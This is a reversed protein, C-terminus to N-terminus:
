TPAFAGDHARHSRGHQQQRAGDSSDRRLLHNRRGSLRAEARRRTRGNREGTGLGCCGILDDRRQVLEFAEGVRGGGWCRLTLRPKSRGRRRNSDLQRRGWCHVRPVEHLRGWDPHWRDGSGRRRAGPPPALGAAGPRRTRSTASYLTNSTGATGITGQGREAGSLKPPFPSDPAAGHGEDVCTGEGATAGSPVGGGRATLQAGSTTEGVGARRDTAARGGPDSEPTRRSHARMSRRGVGRGPGPSDPNGGVTRPPASLRGVPVAPHSIRHSSGNRHSSGLAAARHWVGASKVPAEPASRAPGPLGAPALPRRRWAGSPLAAAVVFPTEHRAQRADVAAQYAAFPKRSWRASGHATVAAQADGTPRPASAM